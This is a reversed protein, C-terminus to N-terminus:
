KLGAQFKIVTIETMTNQQEVIDTIWILIIFHLIRIVSETLNWYIIHYWYWCLWNKKELDCVIGGVLLKNNMANLIKNRLQYIRNDTKLGIRFCYQENSLINYKTLHKLTRTQMAMEFIKSFSTLLSVPRNKSVDCGDGTYFNPQGYRSPMFPHLYLPTAGSSPPSHIVELRLRKAEQFSGLYAHFFLRPPGLIRDPCKPSSFSWRGPSQNEHFNTHLVNLATGRSQCSNNISVNHPLSNDSTYPVEPRNM